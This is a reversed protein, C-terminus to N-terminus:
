KMKMLLRARAEDAAGKIDVKGNAREWKEVTRRDAEAQEPTDGALLAGQDDRGPHTANSGGIRDLREYIAALRWARERRAAAWYDDWTPADGKEAELELRHLRERLGM